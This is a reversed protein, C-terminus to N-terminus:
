LINVFRVDSGRPLCLVIRGSLYPIDGALGVDGVVDFTLLGIQFACRRLREFVGVEGEAFVGYFRSDLEAPGSSETPVCLLMFRRDCCPVAFLVLLSLRAAGVCVPITLFFDPPDIDFPFHIFFQLSKSNTQFLRTFHFNTFYSQNSFSILM